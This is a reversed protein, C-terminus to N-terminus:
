HHGTAEPAETAEPASAATTDQSWTSLLTQPPHNEVALMPILMLVMFLIACIGLVWWVVGGRELKLHMFIMAVLSAKVCAIGLGVVFNWPHPIDLRSVYVTTVTGVILAAFVAMYVRVHRGIDDEHAGAM